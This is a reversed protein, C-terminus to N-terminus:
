LNLDTFTVGVLALFLMLLHLVIKLYISAQNEAVEIEWVCTVNSMYIGNNYISPSEIEGAPNSLKQTQGEICALGTWPFDSNETYGFVQVECLRLRREHDPPFHIRVFRGFIETPCEYVRTQTINFESEQSCYQGERNYMYTDNGVDIFFGGVICIRVSNLNLM